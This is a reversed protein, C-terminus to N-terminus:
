FSNNYYEPYYYSKYTLEYKELRLSKQLSKIYEMDRKTALSSNVKIKKEEPLIKFLALSGAGHNFSKEIILSSVSYPKYQKIDKQWDFLYESLIINNITKKAAKLSHAWFKYTRKGNEKKFVKYYSGNFGKETKVIYFGKYSYENAITDIELGVFYTIEENKKENNMEKAKKEALEPFLYQDVTSYTNFGKKYQISYYVNKM